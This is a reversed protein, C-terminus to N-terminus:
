SVDSYKPFNSTKFYEDTMQIVTRGFQKYKFALPIWKKDIKGKLYSRPNHFGINLTANVLDRWYDADQASYNWNIM